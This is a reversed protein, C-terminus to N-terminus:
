APGITRALAMASDIAKDMNFYEWEAFRGVLHLRQAQLRKRADEVLAAARQDHVVYSSPQHNYAIPRLNGPLSALAARAEAEPVHGSFEVVCSSRGRARIAESNNAASMNGTYIIRHAPCDPEPLYLWSLDGADCECLINSTGNAPLAQLRALSDALAPDDSSVVTALHRLDGTFVARDYRRGDVTLGDGGLQIRQVDHGHSVSLGRALRDVIFQSGGERPYYFYAHVMEAEDARSINDSLIRAVSPMPLKGTLWGLPIQSLDTRWIKQNYPYFYLECLTTGFSEALFRQFDSRSASAPLTLLDQVVRRVTDPPLQHLSNEIPYGLLRGGLLIKANRRVGVFERKRDFQPWFWDNVHADKSNFVHGGVRHFVVDEEVTCRVLGGSGSEREVVEVVHGADQLLRAASIGSIGAGIVLIRDM